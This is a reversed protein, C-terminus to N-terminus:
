KYFDFILDRITVSETELVGVGVSFSTNTKKGREGGERGGEREGKREERGGVM